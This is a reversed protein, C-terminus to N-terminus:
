RVINEATMMCAGTLLAVMMVCGICAVLAMEVAEGFQAMCGSLGEDAVPETLAAAIKLSLMMGAIKLVPKISAVILILLGVTGIANKLLLGSSVLSDMTDSVEGGIIPVVSEITYRVGRVAASDYSSGLLGQISLMGLFVAMMIGTSWTLTNKIFVFLRKLQFHESIGNAIAIGAACGSLTIGIKGLFGDIIDACLASVPSLISASTTAGTLSVTSIMVPSLVESINITSEVLKQATLRIELFSKTLTILCVMRCFLQIGRAIATKNGIIARMIVSVLVPVVLKLAMEYACGVILLICNEFLEKFTEQSLDFEGRMLKEVIERADFEVVDLSCALQELKEFGITEPIIETAWSIQGNMFLVVTILIIRWRKM